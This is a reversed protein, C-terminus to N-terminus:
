DIIEMFRLVTEKYAETWEGACNRVTLEFEEQDKHQLIDNGDAVSASVLRAVYVVFLRKRGEKGRIYHIQETRFNHDALAKLARAHNLYNECCVFTGSERLLRQAAACYAEMGGRFECRAPASQMASPMAGQQIITTDQDVSQVAFYPPTGTVLDFTHALDDPPFTRFDSHVLSIDSAENGFNFSLSRKALAIAEQRAEVAIATSIRDRCKWLVMQLVSGNGTGLDCYRIKDANMSKAAVTATVLDDTTWRHSKYKQLIRFEGVLNCLEENDRPWWDPISTTDDHELEVNMREHTARQVLAGYTQVNYGAPHPYIMSGHHRGRTVRGVRLTVIRTALRFTGHCIKCADNGGRCKWCIPGSGYGPADSNLSQDIPVFCSMSQQNHWILDDISYDHTSAHRSSEM